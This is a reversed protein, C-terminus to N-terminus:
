ARRPQAERVALFYDRIPKAGMSRQARVTILRMGAQRLMRRITARDYARNRVTVEFKRYHRGRKVFWLQHFTALGTRPDFENYATFAHPGLRFLKQSTALWRLFHITNLDFQFLGGDRLIRGVNDFIRQLDSERLVHNLADFQCTVLDAEVPLRLRTLDQCYWRVRRSKRRAVRLMAESKDVGIVTLGRRRTWPIATNGTGCALDVLVKPRLKLARAAALLTRRWEGYFAHISRDGAMLDYYEALDRYADAM